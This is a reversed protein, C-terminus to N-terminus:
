YDNEEAYRNVESECFVFFPRDCIFSDVAVPRRYYQEKM